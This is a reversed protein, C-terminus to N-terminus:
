GYVVQRLILIAITVIALKINPALLPLFRSVLTLVLDGLVLRNFIHPLKGGLWHGWAEDAREM